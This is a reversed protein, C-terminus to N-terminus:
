DWEARIQKQSILEDKSWELQGILDSFDPKISKDVENIKLFVEIDKDLFSTQFEILLKGNPTTRKNLKITNMMM